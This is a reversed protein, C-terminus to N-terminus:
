DIFSVDVPADLWGWGLTRTVDRVVGVVVVCVEAWFGDAFTAAAVFGRLAVVWDVLWTM